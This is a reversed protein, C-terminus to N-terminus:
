SMKEHPRPDRGPRVGGCAPRSALHRIRGPARLWARAAVTPREPCRAGACSGLPPPAAFRSPRPRRPGRFRARQAAPVVYTVARDIGGPKIPLRDALCGTTLTTCPLRDGDVWQSERVTSGPTSRMGIGLLNRPRRQPPASTAADAHLCDGGALAWGGCAVGAGAAGGVEGGASGGACADTCSGFPSVIASTDAFTVGLTTFTNESRLMARGLVDGNEASGNKRYKKPFGLSPSRWAGVWRSRLRPEPTITAESPTIRVLLWTTSCASLTRTASCSPRSSVALTTPASGWLSTATSRTSAFANGAIAIASEEFIRTPSRTSAIPLGNPRPCVTVIPMMLATPRAFM